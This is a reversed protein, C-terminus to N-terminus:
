KKKIKNRMKAVDERGIIQKEDIDMRRDEQQIEKMKILKDFEHRSADLANKSAQMIDSSNDIDNKEFGLAQIEAIRIKTERDAQANQNDNMMKDQQQQMVMQQQQEFQQQKMQLEQQQSQQLQQQQKEKREQIKSLVDKIRNESDASLIQVADMLEAGNQMAPQLLQKLMEVRDKDEKSNTAYVHLNRLLEQRNIKFFVNDLDSNLYNLISEPKRLEVFQMINLATQMVMVMLDEHFKFWPETQSFSQSLAANTGTASESALISGVRQRSIGILEWCESRLAQALQMRTQIEQSRTLDV